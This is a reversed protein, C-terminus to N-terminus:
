TGIYLVRVTFTTSAQYPKGALLDFVHCLGIPDGSAAKGPKEIRRLIM